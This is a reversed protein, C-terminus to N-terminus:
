LLLEFVGDLLVSLLAGPDLRSLMSDIWADSRGNLGKGCDIRTPVHEKM